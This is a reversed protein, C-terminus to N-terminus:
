EACEAGNEPMMTLAISGQAGPGDRDAALAGWPLAVVALVGKQDAVVAAEDRADAPVGWQM